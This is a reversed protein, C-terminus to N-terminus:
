ETDKWPPPGPPINFFKRIVEWDRKSCDDCLGTIKLDALRQVFKGCSMCYGIRAKATIEETISRYIGGRKKAPCRPDSRFKCWAHRKCTGDKKLM